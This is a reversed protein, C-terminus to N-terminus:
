SDRPSPSTYLLCTALEKSVRNLVEAAIDVAVLDAAPIALQEALVECLQAETVFGLDVLLRGVRSGKEVKQRALVQELQEQTIHGARLLMEGLPRRRPRTSPPSWAGIDPQGPESPEPM